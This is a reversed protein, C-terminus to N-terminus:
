LIVKKIEKTGVYKKYGAENIRVLTPYFAVEFLDSLDSGNDWEEVQEIEFYYVKNNKVFEHLFAKADDCHTCTKSYFLILAKEKKPVISENILKKLEFPKLKM